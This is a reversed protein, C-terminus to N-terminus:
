GCFCAGTRKPLSEPILETFLAVENKLLKWEKSNVKVELMAATTM